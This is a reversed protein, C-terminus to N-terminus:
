KLGLTTDIEAKINHDLLIIERLWIRILCLEFQTTHLERM